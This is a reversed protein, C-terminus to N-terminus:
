PRHIEELVLGDDLHDQVATGAPREKALAAQLPVLVPLNVADAPVLRTLLAVRILRRPRVDARWAADPGELSPPM